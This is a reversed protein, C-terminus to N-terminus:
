KFLQPRDDEKLFKDVETELRKSEQLFAKKDSICNITNGSKAKFFNTQAKRMKRVLVKFQEYDM